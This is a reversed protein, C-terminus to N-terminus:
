DVLAAVDGGGAISRSPRHLSAPHRLFVEWAGCLNALCECSGALRREVAEIADGFRHPQQGRHPAMRRDARGAVAKLMGEGDKRRNMCLMGVVFLQEGRRQHDMGPKRDVAAIGHRGNEFGEALAQRRPRDPKHLRHREGFSVQDARDALPGATPQFGM